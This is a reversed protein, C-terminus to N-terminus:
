QPARLEEVYLAADVSSQCALYEDLIISAATKVRALRGEEGVETDATDAM